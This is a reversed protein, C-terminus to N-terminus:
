LCNERQQEGIEYTRVHVWAITPRWQLKLLPGRSFGMYATLRRTNPDEYHQERNRSDNWIHVHKLFPQVCSTHLPLLVKGTGGYTEDAM